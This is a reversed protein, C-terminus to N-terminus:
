LIFPMPLPDAKGRVIEFEDRKIDSCGLRKFHEIQEDAREVPSKGRHNTIFVFENRKGTRPNLASVKAGLKM